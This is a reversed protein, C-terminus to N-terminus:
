KHQYCYLDGYNSVCHRCRVETSKAIAHCQDFRCTSCEETKSNRDSNGKPIEFSYIGFTSSIIICGLLLKKSLTKM